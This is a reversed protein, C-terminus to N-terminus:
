NLKVPYLDQAMVYIYMDWVMNRWSNWTIVKTSSIVGDSLVPALYKLNRRDRHM